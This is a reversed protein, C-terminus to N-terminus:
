SSGSQKRRERGDWPQQLNTSSGPGHASIAYAYLQATSKFGLKIRLNNRHVQVTRHSIHLNESTARADLGRAMLILIELERDTVKHINERSSTRTTRGNSRLLASNAIRRSYFLSGEMLAHIAKRFHDLSTVKEVYGLAGAQLCREAYFEEDHMSYVLIKLSPLLPKLDKILELGCKGPLLIGLIMLDPAQEQAFLLAQEASGCQWLVTLGLGSLVESIGLRMCPHSDVIAVRPSRKKGRQNKRIPVSRKPKM